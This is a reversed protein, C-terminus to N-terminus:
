SDEKVGDVFYMELLGKNKAEIYGRPTCDFYDKIKEYTTASINVKGTESNQQIRAATNVTDGWIDYAFKKIGVVGAVVPGTHIGIRLEFFPLNQESKENKMEKVYRQMELAASIVEKPTGKDPNPLGGAALYADGITKIKELGYQEMILDFSGFYMDLDAVLDTASMQESINTFGKIDAFLVSIEEYGHATTKGYKKLEEATESPLINLLLEDSRSKEASITKMASQQHRYRNILVLIIIFILLIIVILSNRLLKSFKQEGTLTAIKEHDKETDYKTQLEAIAKSKDVSFISDEITKYIRFAKYANKVDGTSDYYDSLNHYILMRSTAAGTKNAIRLAKNLYYYASDMNVNTYVAGINDYLNALMLENKEAEYIKAALLFYSLTKKYYGENYYTIGINEYATAMDEKNDGTKFISLAKVFLDRAIGVKQYKLYFNGLNICDEGQEIINNHKTAIELAKQLYYIAKASDKLTVYLIGLNGLSKSIGANDHKKERLKLCKLNFYVASDYEDSDYCINGLRDYIEILGLEYHANEALNEAIHLYRKTKQANIAQYKLATKWLLNISQTDIHKLNVISDLKKSLYVDEMQASLSGVQIGILFISFLLWFRIKRSKIM